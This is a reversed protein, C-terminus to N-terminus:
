HNKKVVEPLAEVNLDILCRLITLHCQHKDRKKPASKGRTNVPTTVNPSPSPTTVNASSPPSNIESLRDELVPQSSCTEASINQSEEEPSQDNDEGEGILDEDLNRSKRKRQPRQSEWTPCYVIPDPISAIYQEKKACGKRFIFLFLM